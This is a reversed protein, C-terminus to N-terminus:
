RGNRGTRNPASEPRVGFVRALNAKHHAEERVRSDRDNNLQKSRANAAGKTMTPLPVDRKFQQGSRDFAIWRAGPTRSKPNGDMCANCFPHVEFAGSMTKIVLYNGAYLKNGTERDLIADGAAYSAVVAGAANRYEKPEKVIIAWKRPRFKGECGDCAVFEPASEDYDFLGEAQIYEWSLKSGLRKALIGLGTLDTRDSFAFVDTAGTGDGRQSWCKRAEDEFVEEPSFRQHRHELLPKESVETM